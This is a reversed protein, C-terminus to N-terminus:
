KESADDATPKGPKRDHTTQKGTDPTDVGKEMPVRKQKVPDCAMNDDPLPLMPISLHLIGGEPFLESMGRCMPEPHVSILLM